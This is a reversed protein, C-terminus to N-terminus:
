RITVMQSIGGVDGQGLINYLCLATYRKVNVADRMHVKSQSLQM